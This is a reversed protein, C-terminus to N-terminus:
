AREDRVIWAVAESAKLWAEKIHAPLEDWLPMPQGQWNKWGVEEGYAQYAAIALMFM